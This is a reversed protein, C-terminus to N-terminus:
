RSEWIELSVDFYSAGKAQGCLSEVAQGGILLGDLDGVPMVIGLPTRTTARDLDAPIRLPQPIRLPGDAVHGHLNSRGLPLVLREVLLAREM